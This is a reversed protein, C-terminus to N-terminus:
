SQARVTKYGGMHGLVIKIGDAFDTQSTKEAWPWSVLSLEGHQYYKGHKSAFQKQGVQPSFLHCKENHSRENLRLRIQCSSLFLCAIVLRHRPTM